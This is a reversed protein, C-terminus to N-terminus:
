RVFLPLEGIALEYHRVEPEPFLLLSRDQPYYVAKRIDDTGVFAKVADFSEWFSIVLFEAVGNTTRSLVFAGCNGRASRYSPLGVEHVHRLYAAVDEGRTIGHWVRAIFTAM